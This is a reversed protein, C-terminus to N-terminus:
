AMIEGALQDCCGLIRRRLGRRGGPDVNTFNLLLASRAGDGDIAWDTLAEGYLGKERM